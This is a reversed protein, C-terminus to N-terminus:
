LCAGTFLEEASIQFPQFTPTANERSRYWRALWMRREATLTRYKDCQHML